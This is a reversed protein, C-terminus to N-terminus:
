NAEPTTARRTADIDVDLTSTAPLPTSDAPTEDDEFGGILLLGIIIAIVLLTGIVGAIQTKNPLRRGGLLGQGPEDLQMHLWEAELRTRFHYGGAPTTDIIHLYDLGRLLANLKTQNIGLAPRSLARALDDLPAAHAADWAGLTLLAGLLAREQLTMEAWYPAIIESTEELTAMRVGEIARPPIEAPRSSGEYYRYILRCLSHILFPYGGCLALIEARTDAAYNYQDAIPEVILREAAEPELHGLRWHFQMNACVDYELTRAEYHIDLGALIDLREHQHLLQGLFHMFDADLDGADIAQLLVQLDDLLLLLFRDRRIATVAVDMLHDAFWTQYDAPSANPSPEDTVRYTSAGIREMGTIITSAMHQLMDRTNHGRADSLNIYVTRYREDIIYSTHHLLSTKGIGHRGLLILMQTNPAGVLRQRLFAVADARGFFLTPDDPPALPHYPNHNLM